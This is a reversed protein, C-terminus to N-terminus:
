NSDEDKVAYKKILDLSRQSLSFMVFGCDACVLPQLKLERSFKFFIADPDEYIELSLDGGGIQGNKDLARVNEIIKESKCQTCKM